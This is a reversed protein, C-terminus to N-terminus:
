ETKWYQWTGMMYTFYVWSCGGMPDIYWFIDGEKPNKPWEIM